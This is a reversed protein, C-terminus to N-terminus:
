FFGDHKIGAGLFTLFTLNLSILGTAELLKHSTFVKPNGTIQMEATFIFSQRQMPDTFVQLSGTTDDPNLQKVITPSKVGYLRM